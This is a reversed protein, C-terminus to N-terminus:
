EVLKFEYLSWLPFQRAFFYAREDVARFAPDPLFEEMGTLVFGRDLASKVYWEFTGVVGYHKERYETIVTFPRAADGLWPQHLFVPHPDCVIFGGGKKLIRKIDAFLTELDSQFDAAQYYLLFTDSMFIFDASGDNIDDLGGRCGVPRVAFRANAHANARAIIINTLNPDIGFARTGTAAIMNTFYGAGCGLDIVEHGAAFRKAIVRKLNYEEVYKYRNELLARRDPTFKQNLWWNLPDPCNLRLEQFLQQHFNGYREHDVEQRKPAFRARYEAMDDILVAASKLRDLFAGIEKEEAPPWEAMDDVFWAPNAVSSALYPFRYIEFVPLRAGDYKKKLIDTPLLTADQMAALGASDLGVATRAFINLVAWRGQGAPLVIVDSPLEPMKEGNLPM